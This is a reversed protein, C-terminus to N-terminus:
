QHIQNNNILSLRVAFGLNSRLRHSQCKKTPLSSLLHIVNNSENNFNPHQNQVVPFKVNVFYMKTIYFTDKTVINQFTFNGRSDIFETYDHKRSISCFKGIVTVLYCCQFYSDRPIGPIGLTDGFTDRSDWPYGWLAQGHECLFIDLM